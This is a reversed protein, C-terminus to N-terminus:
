TRNWRSVTVPHGLFQRRAVFRKIVEQGPGSVQPGELFINELAPLVTVLTGGDLQQLAFTICKTFKKSVYLNRVATFSLFFEEWHVDEINDEWQSPLDRSRYIYLHEVMHISPLFSPSVQELSSLQYDLERCSIRLGTKQVFIRTPALYGVQVGSHDFDVHVENLAESRTTRTTRKMFHSLQPIDFALQYYFTIWISDLLPADISSVLDELYESVGKFEFRTLVPLLIRRPPPPHRRDFHSPSFEFEITLSELNTLVALSLAIVDPSIYGSPPINRLTLRVLQTTSLLLRPLAPFPISNLTLSQLSTASGDLFGDPLAPTPCGYYSASGLMLHKLAPFPNQMAAALRQLQSSTLHHFYIECVRNHHMIVADFDYDEPMHWDDMDRIIIPLPPWIGILDVRTRPDCVLRLHLFNPSAFVVTRWRRSVHILRHWECFLRRLRGVSELGDLYTVQDFHFIHLLVDDPLTDITVHAISVTLLLQLCSVYSTRKFHSSLVNSADLHRTARSESPVGLPSPPNSTCHVQLVNSADLHHTARPSEFSVDMPNPPARARRVRLANSVDLHHTARSESPVGIPNTPTSTRHM